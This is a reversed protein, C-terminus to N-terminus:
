ASRPPMGNRTRNLSPNPLVNSRVRRAIFTSPAAIVSAAGGVLQAPAACRQRALPVKMAGASNANGYKLWDKASSPQEKPWELGFQPFSAARLKSCSLVSRPRKCSTSTALRFSSAAMSAFRQMRSRTVVASGVQQRVHSNVPAGSTPADANFSPNPSPLM